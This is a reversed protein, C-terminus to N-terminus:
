RQWEQCRQCKYASKPKGNKNFHILEVEDSQGCKPCVPPGSPPAVAPAATAVPKPVPHVAPVAAAVPASSPTSFLASAQDIVSPVPAAAQRPLAPIKVPTAGKTGLYAIVSVAKDVLAPAAGPEDERLTFCCEFGSLLFKVNFSFKAEEM